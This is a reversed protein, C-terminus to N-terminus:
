FNLSHFQSVISPDPLYEPSYFLDFVSLFASEWVWDEGVSQGSLQFFDALILCLKESPGCIISTKWLLSNRFQRGMFCSDLVNGKWARVTCVFIAKISQSGTKGPFRERFVLAEKGRIKRREGVRGGLRLLEHKIVQSMGVLGKWDIPKQLSHIFPSKEHRFLCKGPGM